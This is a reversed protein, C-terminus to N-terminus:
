WASTVLLSLVSLGMFTALLADVHLVQSLALYFPDLGIFIVGLLATREGLLCRCSWWM